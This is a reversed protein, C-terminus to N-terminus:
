QGSQEVDDRVEPHRNTDHQRHKEYEDIKRAKPREHTDDDHKHHDLQEFAVDDRGLDDALRHAQRRHHDDDDQEQAALHEAQHAYQECDWNGADHLHQQGVDDVCIPRRWEEGPVEAHRFVFGARVEVLVIRGLAHGFFGARLWFFRLGFKLRIIIPGIFIVFRIDFLM